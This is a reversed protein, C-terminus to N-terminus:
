VHDILIHITKRYNVHKNCALLNAHYRILLDLEITINVAVVWKIQDCTRQPKIYEMTPKIIDNIHLTLM